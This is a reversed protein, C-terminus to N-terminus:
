LTAVEKEIPAKTKLALVVSLLSLFFFITWCLLMNITALSSFFVTGIPVALTFLLTLLNNTRALMEPATNALLPSDIKPNVKGTLYAAFVLILVGVIAPLGLIYSFSMGAFVLATLVMMTHISLKSFYDKSFLSGLIMAVMFIANVLLLNQGYSLGFISHELFYISFIAGIAGGLSNLLLVSALVAGFSASSESQFIVRMSDIADKMQELFTQDPADAVTEHTLENKYFFLVLGSVLFCAGNILAVLAFNQQSIELLWLGTAQGALICIFSVFQLFSYAEMMDKEDVNKQM